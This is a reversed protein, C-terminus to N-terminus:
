RPEWANGQRVFEKQVEDWAANHSVTERDGNDEVGEREEYNQWATNYVELYLDQAEPPLSDRLERPLESINNYM